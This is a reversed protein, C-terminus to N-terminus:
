EQKSSNVNIRGGGDIIKFYVALPRGDEMIMEDEGPYEFLGVINYDHHIIAGLTPTAQRRNIKVEINTNKGTKLPAYGVIEGVAGDVIQHVVLWGPALSTASKIIIKNDDGIKQNSVAVSPTFLAITAKWEGSQFLFIFVIFFLVIFTGLTGLTLFAGVLYRDFQDIPPRFSRRVLLM